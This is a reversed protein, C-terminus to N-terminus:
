FQRLAGAFLLGLMGHMLAGYFDIHGVIERAHMEMSLVGFSGLGLLGLSIILSLAMLGITRPLGLYRHNLYSFLAALTILVIMIDYFGM